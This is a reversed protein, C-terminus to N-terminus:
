ITDTRHRNITCIYRWLQSTRLKHKRKLRELEGGARLCTTIWAEEEERAEVEWLRSFDTWAEGTVSVLGSVMM